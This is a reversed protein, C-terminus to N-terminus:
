SGARRCQPTPPRRGWSGSVRGACRAQRARRVGADDGPRGRRVRRAAGWQPRTHGSSSRSRRRSDSLALTGRANAIAAEIKGRHRVIVPMASCGSSTRTGFGAVQDPDFGAFAARFGERKRLIALWPVGLQFGELRCGSTSGSTRGSRGGWEEDHYAVYLPDATTWCRLPSAATLSTSRVVGDLSPVPYTEVPQLGAPDAGARHPHRLRRRPAPLDRRVGGDWEGECLPGDDHSCRDEIAYLEGGCNYVGVDVSGAHM